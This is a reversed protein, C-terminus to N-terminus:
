YSLGSSPRPNNPRQGTCCSVGVTTILLLGQLGFALYWGLGLAQGAVVLDSKDVFFKIHYYYLVIIIYGRHSVPLQKKQKKEGEVPLILKYRWFM